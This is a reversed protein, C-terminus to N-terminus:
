PMALRFSTLRVPGGRYIKTTNLKIVANSNEDGVDCSFVEDGSAGFIRAMTITGQALASDEEAIDRFELEGDAASLTAPNSLQLLALMRGNDALLQISGGDLMTALTDLIANNAQDSLELMM